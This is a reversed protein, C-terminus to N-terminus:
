AGEKRLVPEMADLWKQNIPGGHMVQCLVALQSFDGHNLGLVVEKYPTKIHM